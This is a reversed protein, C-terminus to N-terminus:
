NDEAKLFMFGIFTILVVAMLILGIIRPSTGQAESIGFAVLFLLGVCFSVIAALYILFGLGIFFSKLLFGVFKV